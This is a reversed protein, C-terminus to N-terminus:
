NAPRSSKQNGVNAPSVSAWDGEHPWRHRRFSAHPFTAISHGITAGFVAGLAGAILGSGVRSTSNHNAAAGLAFGAGFGILGGIAAHHGDDYSGYAYPSPGYPHPMRPGFRPGRRPFQAQAIQRDDTNQVTQTLKKCGEETQSYACRAALQRPNDADLTNSTQASVATAIAIFVAFAIGVSKRRM